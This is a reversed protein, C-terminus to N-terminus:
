RSKNSTNQVEVKRQFMQKYLSDFDKTKFDPLEVVFKDRNEHLIIYQCDFENVDQMLDELNEATYPVEYEKDRDVLGSIKRVQQQTENDFEVTYSPNPKWNQGVYCSWGKIPSGLGTKGTRVEFWTLWEKRDNTRIRYVTKVQREYEYSCKQLNRRNTIDKPDEFYDLKLDQYYQSTKPEPIWTIRGANKAKKPIFGSQETSM